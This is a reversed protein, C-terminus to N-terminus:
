RSNSSSNPFFFLFFSHQRLFLHFSIKPSWSKPCQRFGGKCDSCRTKWRVLFYAILLLVKLPIYRQTELWKSKGDSDNGHSSQKRNKVDNGSCHNYDTVSVLGRHANLQILHIVTSLFWQRLVLLSCTLQKVETVKCRWRVCCTVGM